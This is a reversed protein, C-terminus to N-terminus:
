EEQDDEHDDTETETEESESHNISGTQNTKRPDSDLVLGLADIQDNSDKIEQLHQSVDRGSETAVQALTKIGGRVAKIQAPIEKTPDIMSRAPYTWTTTVDRTDIGQFECMELFNTIVPDCFMPVLMHTRWATINREFELHGMRGSSYNVDTLNGTLAAYSVGLGAAVAHLQSSIYSPYHEGPGPPNGFEIKEGPDLKHVLGPEVEFDDDDDDTDKDEDEPQLIFAAWCAAIKMRMLQADEFNDLDLLRLLVPALWSVARIQGARKIRFVHFIDDADVRVLDQSLGKWNKFETYTSGPHDKYLHYAVRAGLSDFEIGQTVRNKEVKTIIPEHPLFDGELMQYQPFGGNKSLRAFRQRVLAEGSEPVTRMLLSQMGYFNVMGDFDFNKPNGAYRSFLSTIHDTREKNGSKFIPIIGHAVTNNPIAEIGREAYANDRVLARSRDRVEKISSVIEANANTSRGTLHRTRRGHKAAEYARTEIKRLSQTVIRARIRKNELSPNILGIARDIWM